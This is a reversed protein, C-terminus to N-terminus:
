TDGKLSDEFALSSIELHHEQAAILTNVCAQGVSKSATQFRNQANVSVDTQCLSAVLQLHSGVYLVYMSM